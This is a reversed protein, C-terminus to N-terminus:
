QKLIASDEREKEVVPRLRLIVKTGVPPIRGKAVGWAEGDSLNTLQTSRALLEDGFNVLSLVTGSMDALYVRKGEYTRFDSGTFLWINGKLPHGTTQNIIWENVPVRVMGQNSQYIATVAVRPGTALKRIKVGDGELQWRMPSGPELGIMLLGLHIHSPKAKVVVISEHDPGGPSCALLELWEGNGTQRRIVAGELDVFRAERNIQLNPLQKPEVQLLKGTTQGDPTALATSMAIGLMAAVVVRCIRVIGCRM